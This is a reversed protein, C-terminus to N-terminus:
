QFNPIWRKIIAAAKGNQQMTALSKNVSELLPADSRRVAWALQERSFLTQVPALDTEHMSALWWVLTSDSMFVDIRKKQLAKVVEECSKFNKRKNRPFEQQVLYDGTTGAIVGIANPSYISMGPPYKSIDQRRVLAMQGITLYPTAFAVRLQRATTISMSSMIIDIRGDTLAPIEDDWDLEVFQIKRGLEQGLALAFDGEVGVFQGAEKYIMPPSNPTVGVRLAPADAAAASFLPGSLLLWLAPLCRLWYSSSANTM